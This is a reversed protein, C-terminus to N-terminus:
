DQESHVPGSAKQKNRNAKRKIRHKISVPTAVEKDKVAVDVNKMHVGPFLELVRKGEMGQLVVNNERIDVLTADGSKGGLAITEGNIVAARYQPSIIISQLGEKKVVPVTEAAGSKDAETDYPIDVAPKTPDALLEGAFVPLGNCLLGAMILVKNLSAAM